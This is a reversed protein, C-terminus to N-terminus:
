SAHTHALMGNQRLRRALQGCQAQLIQITALGPSGHWTMKVGFAMVMPFAEQRTLASTVRDDAVRLRKLVIRLELVGCVIWALIKWGDKDYFPYSAGNSPAGEKWSEDV